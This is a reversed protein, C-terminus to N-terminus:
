GTMFETTDVINETDDTDDESDEDVDVALLKSAALACADRAIDLPM